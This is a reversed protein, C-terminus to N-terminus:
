LYIDPEINSLVFLFIYFKSTQKNTQRSINKRKNQNTTKNENLKQLTTPLIKSSTLPSICHLIKFFNFQFFFCSKETYALSVKFKSIWKGRGRSHQSLLRAGGNGPKSFIKLSIIYHERETGSKFGRYYDWIKVQSYAMPHVHTSFAFYQLCSM